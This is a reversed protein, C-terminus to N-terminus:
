IRSIPKPIAPESGRRATPQPKFRSMCASCRLSVAGLLLRPSSGGSDYPGLFLLLRGLQYYRCFSAAWVLDPKEKRKEFFMIFHQFLVNFM